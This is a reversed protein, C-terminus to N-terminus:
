EHFILLPYSATASLAKIISKHFLTQIISPNMSCLALADANNRLVYSDISSIVENSYITDFHVDIAETSMKSRQQIEKASVEAEHSYHDKVQLVTVRAELLKAWETLQTMPLKHEHEYDYAFVITSIDQYGCGHPILMVPITSLRIVQYSNTGFFFQYYDDAGNTGMVILDFDKARQTIIDSLSKNSPEVESLCTIKFVQMVQYCQDELRSRVPETALFKGKIVEEPPLSFITQANLLTLEANVKKCLKAAYAIAQEAAESFDTPCLIRKM